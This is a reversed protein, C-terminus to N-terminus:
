EGLYSSVYGELDKHSKIEILSQYDERYRDGKDVQHFISASSLKSIESFDMLANQKAISSYDANKKLAKAIGIYYDNSM